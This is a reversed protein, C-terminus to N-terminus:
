VLTVESSPKLCAVAGINTESQGEIDLTSMLDVTNLIAGNAPSIEDISEGGIRANGKEFALVRDGCTQAAAASCWLATADTSGIKAKISNSGVELDGWKLELKSGTGMLFVGRKADPFVYYPTGKSGSYSITASNKIEGTSTDMVHVHGGKKADSCSPCEDAPWAAWVESGDQTFSFIGDLGGWKVEKAPFTGVLTETLTAPDYSKLHFPADNPDDGRTTRLGRTATFDSATGLLKSNDKPDCAIVHFLSTTPLDNSEGSALDLARMGYGAMPDGWVTYYVNNCVVGTWTPRIDYTDSVLQSSGTVTDVSWVTTNWGAAGGGSMASNTVLVSAAEAGTALLSLIASKM